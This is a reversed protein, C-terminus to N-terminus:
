TAALAHHEARIRQCEASWFTKPDGVRRSYPAREALDFFMAAPLGTQRLVVLASLLSQRGDEHERRCVEELMLSILRGRWHVRVQHTARLWLSLEKYTLTCGPKGDPVLAAVHLRERSAEVARNYEDDDVRMADVETTAL